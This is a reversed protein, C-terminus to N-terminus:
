TGVRAAHGSRRVGDATPGPRDAGLGDSELAIEEVPKPREGSRRRMWERAPEEVFRWMLWAVVIAGVVLASSRGPRVAAATIGAARMVARWLGYWVTHTMYLSFSIYGGLVLRDRSLFRSPGRSTLALAGIWLILLPM